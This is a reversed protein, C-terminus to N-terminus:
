IKIKLGFHRNKILFDKIFLKVSFLFKGNEFLVLQIVAVFISVLNIRMEVQFFFM